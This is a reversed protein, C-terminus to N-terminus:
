EKKPKLEPPPQSETPKNPNTFKYSYVWEDAHETCSVVDHSGEIMEHLHYIIINAIKLFDGRAGDPYFKLEEMGQVIKSSSTLNTLLNKIKGTDFDSSHVTHAFENRIKKILNLDKAFRTSILGLRQTIQIKSDLTSLPAFAGELLRDENVVPVFYKKLLNSLADEILSVTLIAAGRDTEKKFEEMLFDNWFNALSKNQQQKDTM